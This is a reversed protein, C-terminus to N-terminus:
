ETAASRRRVASSVAEQVEVLLNEQSSGGKHLISQVSGHLRRLDEESLEMATVVVVPIRRWAPRKRLEAVFDFGDMEPMTLDLLILEPLNESVRELAQRGNTAEAVTWGEKQLMRVMLERTADDDEVVLVPCPPTACRYRRLVGALRTRNVPKSLYDTAGLAYGMSRDSVMTLLIVPIEATSEDAKLQSLVTWGDMEPMMVDLTIATPHLEQALRLGEQGSPATVVHFGDRTLFRRILERVTEDDDIVLITGLGPVPDTEEVDLDDDDPLEAPQGEERPPLVREPLILTFVSGEGAESEVTIDGQLMNAFRRSIALGLGTGGYQKYTDAHAQTFEQFLREMQEDTMGIGTDIVRFHVAAPGDGGVREVELRVTGDQTFKNANSLLNFLAQRVKTQDSTMREVSRDVDVELTNGNQVAM